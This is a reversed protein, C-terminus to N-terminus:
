IVFQALAYSVCLTAAMSTLLARMFSHNLIWKGIKTTGTRDFAICAIMLGGVPIFLYSGVAPFLGVLTAPTLGLVVGLPMM